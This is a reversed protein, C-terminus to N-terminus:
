SYRSVPGLRCSKIVMSMRQISLLEEFRGVVAPYEGDSSCVAESWRSRGLCPTLTRAYLYSVPYCRTSGVSYEVYDHLSRCAHWLYGVCPCLVISKMMVTKYIEPLFPRAIEVGSVTPDQLLVTDYDEEM